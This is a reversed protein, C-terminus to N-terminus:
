HKEQRRQRFRRVKALNGCDRMDCWQRSRNRSADLFLWGCDEGGCQRVRSIEDSTLVEIASSALPWLMCDLSGKDDWELAFGESKPVLRRHDNATSLEENVVRLDAEEARKGVMKARFIRYMAERFKSARRLIAEAKKPQEHASRLLRRAEKGSLVGARTSWAVLDSYSRLKDDRILYDDRSQARGRPKDNLTRGSVSNVFDLCLRGGVLKM